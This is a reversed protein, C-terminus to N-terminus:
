LTRRTITTCNSYFTALRATRPSMFDIAGPTNEQVGSVSYLTLTRCLCDLISHSQRSFVHTTAEVTPNVTLPMRLKTWKRHTINAAINGSYWFKWWEFFNM